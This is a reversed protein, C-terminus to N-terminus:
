TSTKQTTVGYKLNERRHLNLDFDETHTTVGYKLNERRHLNLRANSMKKESSTGSSCIMSDQCEAPKDHVGVCGSFNSM